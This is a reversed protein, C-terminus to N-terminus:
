VICPTSKHPRRFHRLDARSAGVLNKFSLVIILQATREWIIGPEASVQLMGHSHTRLVDQNVPINAQLHLPAIRQLPVEAFM